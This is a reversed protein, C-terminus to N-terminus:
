DNRQRERGRYELNTSVVILTVWPEGSSVSLAYSLEAMFSAVIM